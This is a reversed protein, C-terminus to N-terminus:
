TKVSIPNRRGRTNSVLDKLIVLNRVILNMSFCLVVIRPVVRNYEKNVDISNSSDGFKPSVSHTQNVDIVLERKLSNIVHIYEDKGKNNKVEM